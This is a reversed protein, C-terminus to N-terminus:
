CNDFIHIIYFKEFENHYENNLSESRKHYEEDSEVTYVRHGRLMCPVCFICVLYVSIAVKANFYDNVSWVTYM